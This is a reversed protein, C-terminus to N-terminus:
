PGGKESTGPTEPAFGAGSPLRRRTVPGGVHRGV